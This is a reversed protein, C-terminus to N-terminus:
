LDFTPEGMRVLISRGPGRTERRGHLVWTNDVMLVDGVQWEIPVALRESVAFLEDIIPGPLRDGGETRVVIPSQRSPGAGLNEQIWGSEFAWEATYVTLVNNIFVPRGRRAHDRVAPCVYESEVTRAARDIRVTTQTERCLAEVADLDGTMFTTQWDGDALRRVYKLREARFFAQTPAGLAAWLEAGDCVTTQGGAAAPRECYFWLLAPPTALYYMEGHPWIAFGQTHGTTTLLTEDNGVAERDLMRWRFAGARYTSFDRCYAATFARFVEVDVAFGRFLLAGHRVFEGIVEARPLAALDEGDGGVILGFSKALATVTSLRPSM